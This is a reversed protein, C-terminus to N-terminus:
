ADFAFGIHLQLTLMTGRVARQETKSAPVGMLDWCGLLGCHRPVELRIEARTDHEVLFAGGLNFAGFRVSAGGRIGVMPSTVVDFYRTGGVIGLVDLYARRGLPLSLGLMGGGAARESGGRYAVGVGLWRHRVLLDVGLAVQEVGAGSEPGLTARVRLDTDARGELAPALATASLLTALVLASM